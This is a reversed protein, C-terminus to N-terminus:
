SLYRNPDALIVDRVAEHYKVYGTCRCLHGDLADRITALLVQGENMFGPTCYGCQFSFHEVFAKQLVSLQGNQAHGEVTRISKGAFSAAPVVCTPSTESTGDPNDVIVACSLCQALGCGFKTGTLGLYERLFDNMSLEDGVDFPGHAKGNITVSMKNV